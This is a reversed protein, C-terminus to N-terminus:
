KLRWPADDPRKGSDDYQGFYPSYDGSGDNHGMSIVFYGLSALESCIASHGTRNGTEGHSFIIPKLEGQNGRKRNRYIPVRASLLPMFSPKLDMKAIAQGKNAHKIARDFGYIHDIGYTLYQV